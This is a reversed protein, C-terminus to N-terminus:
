PQAARDLRAQRELQARLAQAGSSDMTMVHGVGLDDRRPSPAPALPRGRGASSRWIPWGPFLAELGAGAEERDTM